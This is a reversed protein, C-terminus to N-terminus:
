ESSHKQALIQCAPYNSIRWKGWSGAVHGLTKELLEPVNKVVFPLSHQPSFIPHFENRKGEEVLLLFERLSSKQSLCGATLPLCSFNQEM